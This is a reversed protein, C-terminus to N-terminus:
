RNQSKLVDRNEKGGPCFSKSPDFKRGKTQSELQSIKIRDKDSLARLKLLDAKLQLNEEKLKSIHRIKQKNNQHGLIQGYKESLRKMEQQSFMNQSMLHQKEFEYQELQDMFPGVKLELDEFKAKWQEATMASEELKSLLRDVEEQSVGSQNEAISKMEVLEQQLNSIEENFLVEKRNCEKILREEEEKLIRCEEEFQKEMIQNKETLVVIKEEYSVSKMKYDSLEHKLQCIEMTFKEKEEEVSFEYSALKDKLHKVEMEHKKSREEAASLQEKFNQSQKKAENVLAENGDKVNVLEANLLAIAHKHSAIENKKRWFLKM